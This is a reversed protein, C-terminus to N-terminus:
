TEIGLLEKLREYAHNIAAMQKGDDLTRDPHFHMAMERYWSKIKDRPDPTSEKPSPPAAGNSDGNRYAPCPGTNGDEAILKEGCLGCLGSGGSKGWWNTKCPACTYKVKSSDPGPKKGNSSPDRAQWNLQFGSRLLKTCVLDFLGGPIIYHSMSQGTRKGGPLGTNSPMLGLEEMKDAWEHNHYRGRGPKGFQFQWLHIMEHVLTSLIEKDSRGEFQAPNLAIEDTQEDAVRHAFRQPSYYGRANAKRQLTIYCATLAGGFLERNFFDFAEAFSGYEQRTPDAKKKGKLRM